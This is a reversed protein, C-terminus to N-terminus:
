NKAKSVVVMSPRLLRDHILYGKQLEVVVLNAPQDDMEQQMVAQHFSPNFPEGLAQIPIVHFKEFIKLVEQLTLEVGQVFSEATDAQEKASGIARELNDVVTLLEKLLAENAYKRFESVERSTRKKYNEFEASVRLLREYNDKAEKKAAELEANVDQQKNIARQKLDHLDAELEEVTQGENETVGGLTQSAVESEESIKEVSEERDQEPETNIEIKKTKSM